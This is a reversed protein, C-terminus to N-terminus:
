ASQDRARKQAELYASIILWIRDPVDIFELGIRYRVADQDVEVLTCHVVRANVVVSQTELKLRLDHLSNLQLPFSALIQVGVDGVETVAIPQPVMIDGALHGLVALRESQRKDSPDDASRRNDVDSM